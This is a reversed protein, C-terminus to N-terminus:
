RFDVGVAALLDPVRNRVRLPKWLWRSLGYALVFIGLLILKAPSSRYYYYGSLGLAICIPFGVIVSISLCIAFRTGERRNARRRVFARLDDLVERNKLDSLPVDDEPCNGPRRSARRFCAICIYRPGASDSEIAAPASHPPDDLTCIPDSAADAALDADSEILPELMETSLIEGDDPPPARALIAEVERRVEAVSPEFPSYTDFRNGSRQRENLQAQHLHEKVEATVSCRLCHYGTGFAVIDTQELPFRDDCSACVVPEGGDEAM